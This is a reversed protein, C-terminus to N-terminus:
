PKFLSSNGSMQIAFSHFNTIRINGKNLHKSNLDGSPIRAGVTRVLKHSFQVSIILTICIIRNESSLEKLSKVWIIGLSGVGRMHSTMLKCYGDSYLVFSIRVNSKESM